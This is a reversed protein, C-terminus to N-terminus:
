NGHHAELLDATANFGQALRRLEVPTFYAAQEPPVEHKGLPWWDTVIGVRAREYNLHQLAELSRGISKASQIANLRNAEAGTPVPKPERPTPPEFKETTKVTETHTVEVPAPPEPKNLVEGTASDVTLGDVDVTAPRSAPREKGDAGVTKDFQPIEATAELRARAAGVTKDDVGLTRGHERNSKEPQAKLAAEVIARKQERNLQRRAINLEISLAYKQAETLMQRTESPLHLGHHEAIAKRHHGDIVVGRDDVIIPVQIGNAIISAELDAYEDTSLPPMLQYKVASM